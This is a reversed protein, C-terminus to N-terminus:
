ASRLALLGLVLVPTWSPRSRALALVHERTCSDWLLWSLGSFSSDTWLQGLWESCGLHHPGALLANVTQCPSDGLCCHGRLPLNCVLGHSETWLSFLVRGHSRERLFVAFGEVSHLVQLPHTCLQPPCLNVSGAFSSWIHLDQHLSLVFLCVSM